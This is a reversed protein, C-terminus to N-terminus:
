VEPRTSIKAQYDARARMMAADHEDETTIKDKRAQAQKDSYSGAAYRANKGTLLKCLNHKLTEEQTIGTCQRLLELYFEMDGLEEVMNERNFEKGYMVHKKMCDIIEGAEGAIGIAAHMLNTKFAADNLRSYAVCGGEDGTGVISTLIDLPDKALKAVMYRHEQRISWEKEALVALSINPYNHYERGSLPRTERNEDSQIEGM